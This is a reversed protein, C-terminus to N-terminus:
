PLKVGFKKEIKAKAASSEFKPATRNTATWNKWAAQAQKQATATSKAIAKTRAVDMSAASKTKSTKPMGSAKVTKAASQVARKSKVEVATKKSKSKKAVYSLGPM